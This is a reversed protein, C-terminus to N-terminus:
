PSIAHNRVIVSTSYIMRKPTTSGQNVQDNDAVITISIRRINPIQADLNAPAILNEQGDYFRFMPIGAAANVVNTGFGGGLIATPVGCSVSRFITSAGDYRYYINEDTDGIITRNANLDMQVDITSDSVNNIGKRLQFGSVQCNSNSWMNASQEVRRPNYSAMRIEMAMLDLVARADQQTVVKRGVSTSSRQAINSAGYIALMIVMGIAIAVMIEVLTFGKEVKM